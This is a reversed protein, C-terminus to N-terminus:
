WPLIEGNQHWFTGTTELTLADIRALLGQAADDPGIQGRGGIMDTSVMGPHLVAVAVGRQALDRAVSVAMINMAAKSMRYGYHGGSTNDGVSGMRSTIYAIKSGPGVRELLAHTIRLAGLANVEFQKIIDDWKPAALEDGWVLIGANNILLDVKRGDVARALRTAGGESAVDVGAVIEAGTAELESTKTRCAAIVEWKRARLAKVLSLGIGRSSGTVVATTM